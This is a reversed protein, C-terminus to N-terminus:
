GPARGTSGRVILEFRVEEVAAVHEGALRGLMREAALRGIDAAPVRVTTLPPTAVAAMEIDDFGAVSMQRPVDIGRRAYEYHPRGEFKLASHAPPTQTITGTFRRLASEFDDRTFLVPKTATVEGEADQTTTTVGFRVAAM